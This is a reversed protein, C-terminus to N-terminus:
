NGTRVLQVRDGGKDAILVFGRLLAVDNAFNVQGPEVGREGYRAVVDGDRSIRVFEHALADVVLVSGDNLVTLGRPLELERDGKDNLGGPIQGVQWRVSGDPTFATVRSHNSDSVYVTMEDDSVAIGNPHDLDGAATGPRGWQDVLEGELTFVFVQYADTAYVRDGAVAVDTVAIGRGGYGSSGLGVPANPDPFRRLPTGEADFVEISDNYFSAVYVNGDDDIDIGVPYNLSGPQYTVKADGAPKAVGFGGFAFEFRGQADFVCVRNNGSDTVYIRTDKGVAVGMPGDFLPVDGEGPGYVQWVPQIGEVSNQRLFVEPRGLFWFLYVLLGILILTLVIAIALFVRRATLIRRSRHAAPGPEEELPPLEDLMEDLSASSEPLDSM